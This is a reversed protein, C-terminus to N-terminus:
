EILFPSRVMLIALETLHFWVSNYCFASEKKKKESYSDMTVFGCLHYAFASSFDTTDLKLYHM